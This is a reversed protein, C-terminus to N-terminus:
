PAKAMLAAMEPTGISAQPGAYQSLLAPVLDARDLRYAYFSKPDFAEGKLNSKADDSSTCNTQLNGTSVMEAGTDCILPNNVKDFVSNQVVVKSQGRSYNGYSTINQLWNNYLHGTGNDLSPNRQNTDHIWTHHITVHLKGLDQTWGIGFAKNHNSLVSWSVTLYDSGKRFDILGDEMHTLLCHDIWIHHSTDIQIGDFDKLKGHPDDPIWSDRLTLNRFIVNTTGPRLQFEGHLLTADKGMGLITKDSAVYIAKGFPEKEITGKICIVLPRTAAAYKELDALNDVTVVEGGAGGTTGETDPTVVTAFGDAKPSWVPPALLAGGVPAVPGPADSTTPAAHGCGLPGLGTLALCLLLRKM